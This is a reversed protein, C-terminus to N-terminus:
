GGAPALVMEAVAKSGADRWIGILGGPGYVGYPGEIGAPAIQRALVEGGAKDCNAVAAMGNGYKEDAAGVTEGGIDAFVGFERERVASGRKRVLDHAYKHGLLNVAGDGDEGSVGIM